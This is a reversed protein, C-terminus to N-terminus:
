GRAQEGEDQVRKLRETLRAALSRDSMEALLNAAQRDGMFYLLKVADDVRGTQCWQAVIESSAGSDMRDYVTALRKLNRREVADIRVLWSQLQQYKERLSGHATTMETRLEKLAAVREGLNKRALELRERQEALAALEADRQRTKAKLETILQQLLQENPRLVVQPAGEGAGGRSADEAAPESAGGPDPPPAQGVGLLGAVFYSGVLSVLALPALIIILKKKSM